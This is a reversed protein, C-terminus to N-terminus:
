IINRQGRLYNWSTSHRLLVSDSVKAVAIDYDFTWYDYLLNEIIRAAPHLTGRSEMFSSGALFRSSSLVASHNLFSNTICHTEKYIQALTSLQNYPQYYAQLM